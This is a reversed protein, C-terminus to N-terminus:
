QYCENLEKEVKPPDLPQKRAKRVLVVFNRMEDRKLLNNKDTDLYKFIYRCRLEAPGGGHSTGPEIAALFYLFERFSIGGRGYMDASRFLHHVEDKPWGIDVVFKSFVPLALFNSPFAM